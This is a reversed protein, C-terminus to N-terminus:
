PPASTPNLTPKAPAHSEYFVLVLTTCNEYEVLPITASEIVARVGIENSKGSAIWSETYQKAEGYNDTIKALGSETESVLSETLRDYVAVAPVFDQWLNVNNNAQQVLRSLLQEEKIYPLTERQPMTVGTSNGQVPSDGAALHKKLQNQANILLTQLVSAQKKVAMVARTTHKRLPSQFERVDPIRSRGNIEQEHWWDPSNHFRQLQDSLEASQLNKTAYLREWNTESTGAFGIFLEPSKEVENFKKQMAKSPLDPIFRERHPLKLLLRVEPQVSLDNLATFTLRGYGLEAEPAKLDPQNKLLTLPRSLLFYRTTKAVTPTEPDLPVEDPTSNLPILQEPAGSDSIYFGHHLNKMENIRIAKLATTSVQTMLQGECWSSWSPIHEISQPSEPKRQLMAIKRNGVRIDLPIWRAIEAAESERSADISWTFQLQADPDDDNAPTTRTLRYTGLPVSQGGVTAALQWTDPNAADKTISPLLLDKPLIATAADLFSLEILQGGLRLPLPASSQNHQPKPLEFLWQGRGDSWKPDRVAVAASIHAFPGSKELAALRKKEKDAAEDRLKQEALQKQALEAALKTEAERKALEAAREAAIAEDRALKERAAKQKELSERQLRIADGATSEPQSTRDAIATYANNDDPRTALLAITAAVTLLFAVASFALLWGRRSSTTPIEPLLHPLGQRRTGPPSIAKGAVATAASPQNPVSKGGPVALQPNIGTAPSGVLQTSPRVNENKIVAARAINVLNGGSAPPLPKALDVVRARADNRIATAEATNDPIFRLQCETGALLRTFYTSFTIAWRQGPPLLDLVEQTLLLTNTGMPFLVNIPSPSNLLQEAISGAWGHDGTVAHWAVLQITDPADVQPLQRPPVNRVEGNWREVIIGPQTLLRAPGAPICDRDTLALHHALKNSRGSYDQGADAVRSVVHLSQGAIRTTIHSFSVPNLAARPDGVPFIQRYGSMSELREALNIPIGVTAVVTCFGRSGQKLGKEASTYIIEQIM